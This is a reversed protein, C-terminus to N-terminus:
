HPGRTDSLQSHEACQNVRMNLPKAGAGFAVPGDLQKSFQRRYPGALKAAQNIQNSM